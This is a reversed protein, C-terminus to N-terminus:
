GAARYTASSRKVIFNHFGAKEVRNRVMDEDEPNNPGLIVELVIAGEHSADIPFEIYAIEESGRTRVKVAISGGKSGAGVDFYKGESYAVARIVRFEKEEFFSPHKLSSLDLAFEFLIKEWVLWHSLRVERFQPTPYKLDPFVNPNPHVDSAVIVGGSERWFDQLEILSQIIIAEQRAERYEIKKLSVGWKKHIHSARLGLSFGRGDDSYARWQGLLDGNASFSGVFPRAVKLTGFVMYIVFDRFDDDFLEPHELFVKFLWALGWKHEVADNLTLIDSLWINGKEIISWIVEQSCYHYLIQSSTPKANLSLLNPLNSKM